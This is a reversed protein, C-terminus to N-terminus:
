CMEKVWPPRTCSSLQIEMASGTLSKFDDNRGPHQSNESCLLSRMGKRCIPTDDICTRAYRAFPLAYTWWYSKTSLRMFGPYVIDPSSSESSHKSALSNRPGPSCLLPPSWPPWAGTRGLGIACPLSSALGIARTLRMSCSGSLSTRGNVTAAATLWSLGAGCTVVTGVVGAGSFVTSFLALEERVSRLDFRNGLGTDRNISSWSSTRSRGAFRLRFPFALRPFAPGEFETDSGLSGCCCACGCVLDLAETDLFRGGTVGGANSKSLIGNNVPWSRDCASRNKSPLDELEPSCRNTVQSPRPHAQSRCSCGTSSASSM